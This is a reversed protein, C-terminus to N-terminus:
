PLVGFSNRRDLVIESARVSPQSSNNSFFAIAFHRSLM